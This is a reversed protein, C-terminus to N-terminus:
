KYKGQLYNIYDYYSKFIPQAYATRQGTAVGVYFNEVSKDVAKGAAKNVIVDSDYNSVQPNANCVNPECCPPVTQAQSNLIPASITLTFTTITYDDVAYIVLTYTGAPTASTTTIVGTNDITITPDGGSQISFTKYNAAAVGNSTGAASITQSYTQVVNNNSINNLTYPSPGFNKLFYATNQALSVWVTGVGPTSAPVGTMAASASADSWSGNAAYCNTLTTTGPSSGSVIGNASSFTGRSFCNIAIVSSPSAGIIGGSNIQTINGLSYCNQITCGTCSGGLIGGAFAGSIVGTSYCNQITCGAQAGSGVIGGNSSSGTIAGTTFCSDILITGSNAAANNGVIGGAVSTSSIAGTFSCAIITLRQAVSSTAQGAYSGVIGGSANNTLNGNATCNIIYNGTATRAYFAQAIWGGQSVLTTTGTANVSLNYISIDNRGSTLSGTNGNNVLGLFGVIDTVTIIRRTGDNNLSESGFQINASGCLFYANTATSATSSNLTIDTTFLVKLLSAPTSNTITVPWQSATISTWSTGNTSYQIGSSDRIYLTDTASINLAM